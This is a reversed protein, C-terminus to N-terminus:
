RDSRITYHYAYGPEFIETITAPHDDPYTSDACTVSHTGISLEFSASGTPPLEARRVWDIFVHETIAFDNRVVLSPQAQGTFSRELTTPARRATAVGEVRPLAAPLKPPPSGQSCAVVGFLVGVAPGSRM